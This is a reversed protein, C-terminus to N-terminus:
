RFRQKGYHRSVRGADGPLHDWETGKNSKACQWLNKTLNEINLIPKM